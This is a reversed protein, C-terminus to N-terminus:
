SSPVEHIEHVRRVDAVPLTCPDLELLEYVVALARETSRGAHAFLAASTQRRAAAHRSPDALAADVVGAIEEDNDAIDAM